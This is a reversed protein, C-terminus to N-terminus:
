KYYKVTQFHSQKSFLTNRNFSRSRNLTLYLILFVLMIICMIFLFIKIAFIDSSLNQDSKKINNDPVSIKVDNEVVPSQTENENKVGEASNTISKECNVGRIHEKQLNIASADVHLHLEEWNINEM